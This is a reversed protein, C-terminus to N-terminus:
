RGCGCGGRRKRSRGFGGRLSSSGTCMGSERVYDIVSKPDIPAGRGVMGRSRFFGDEVMETVAEDWWEAVTHGSPTEVSVHQRDREFWQAVKLHECPTSTKRRAM